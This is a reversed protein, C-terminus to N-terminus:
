HFKESFERATSYMREGERTKFDRNKFDKVEYNTYLFTTHFKSSMHRMKHVISSVLQLGLHPFVLRSTFKNDMPLVMSSLLLGLCDIVV